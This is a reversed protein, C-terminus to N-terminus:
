QKEIVAIKSAITYGVNDGAYQILDSLQYASAPAGTFRATSCLRDIM